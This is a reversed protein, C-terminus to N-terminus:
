PITNNYKHSHNKKYFIDYWFLTKYNDEDTLQARVESSHSWYIENKERM